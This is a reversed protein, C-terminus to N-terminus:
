KKPAKSEPPHFGLLYFVRSEAAVHVANTALDNSNRVSFGNTDDAFVVV